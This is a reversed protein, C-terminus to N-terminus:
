RVKGGRLACDSKRTYLSSGDVECLVPVDSPDRQPEAEETATTWWGKVTEGLGALLGPEERGSTGPKPPAPEGEGATKPRHAAMIAEGKDLEELAFCGPALCALALLLLVRAM